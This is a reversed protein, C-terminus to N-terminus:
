TENAEKEIMSSGHDTEEPELQIEDERVLAEIEAQNKLSRDIEFVLKPVKRLRASQGVDARLRGSASQLGRIVRSEYKDPVVSIKIRAQSLDPAVDVDTVSVLGRIRPDGLGRSLSAQISKQISSRVRAIRTSSSGSDDKSNRTKM